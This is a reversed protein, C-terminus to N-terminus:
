KRVRSHKQNVKNNLRIEADQRNQETVAEYHTRMNDLLKPLDAGPASDM